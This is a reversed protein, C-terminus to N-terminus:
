EGEAESKGERSKMHSQSKQVSSMPYKMGVLRGVKSHKKPAHKQMYVHM